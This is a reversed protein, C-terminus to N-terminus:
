REGAPPPLFGHQGFIAAGPASNVFALFSRAQELQAADKLLGVVVEPTPAWKGSASDLVVVDDIGRVETRYVIASAVEGRRAYALVASVDGGFVLRKQLAQWKGLRKLATRAYHGAPVSGPDGLALREGAPLQELTAFTLPGAQQAILVLENGAVVARSAALVHGSAVLEDVPAASALLLADVPAGDQVRKRLDGSAGYAARVAVQSHEAVFAAILAPVVKRLSAAAGLTVTTPKDRASRRCAPLVAAGLAAASWTLVSRRRPRRDGSAAANEETPEGSSRAIRRVSGAIAM